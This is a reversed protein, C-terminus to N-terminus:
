FFMPLVKNSPNNRGFFGFTFRDRKIYLSLVVIRCDVSCNCLQLMDKNLANEGNEKNWVVNMTVPYPQVLVHFSSFITLYLFPPSPSQTHTHTRKRQLELILAAPVSSLWSFSFKSMKLEMKVSKDFHRQAKQIIKM